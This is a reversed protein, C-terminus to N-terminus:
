GSAVPTPSIESLDVFGVGTNSDAWKYIYYSNTYSNINPYMVFKLFKGGAFTGKWSYGYVIFVRNNSGDIFSEVVFMDQGAHIQSSTLATSDLRTGDSRYWCVTDKDAEYNWYVPAIRQGEYYNVPANVRPGGFLVVAKDALRLAGSSADVIDSNTDTAEYQRNSCMGLILGTATWDSLKAYSVGAPKVGEFDPYVCYATELAAKIVYSDIDSLAVGAPPNGTNSVSLVFSTGTWYQVSISFVYVTNTYTQGVGWAADGDFYSKTAANADVLRVIGEGSGKSEDIVTILVGYSPANPPLNVDYGIRQRAEALYYISSSIPIRVAYYGTTPYEIRDITATLTGGSFSRVKSAPIWGLQIKSWSSLHQSNCVSMLDWGDIFDHPDVSNYDYLDPLGLDHAFEHEFVSTSSSESQYTVTNITVGDNTVIGLGYATAPWVWDDAFVMIYHQFSAFNVDHDVLSVVDAALKRYESWSLSQYSVQYHTTPNSLKYWQSTVSGTVQILNYSVEVFYSNMQGYVLQQYYSVTHSSTKDSFEVLITIASQSGSVGSVSGAPLVDSLTVNEVQLTRRGDASALYGSVDVIKGRHRFPTQTAPEFVLEIAGSDDVLYYKAESGLLVALRGRLKVHVSNPPPKSFISSTNKETDFRTGSSQPELPLLGQAPATLYLLMLLSCVIVIRTRRV